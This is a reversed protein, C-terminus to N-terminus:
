YELKKKIKGIKILLKKNSKLKGDFRHSAQSVGSPGIGFYDGIEQLKLSSYRHCFYLKAQKALRDDTQIVSDVMDAITGIDPRNVFEALAPLERDQPKKKLFQDKIEQAYEPSSL